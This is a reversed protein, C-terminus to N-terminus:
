VDDANEKLAFMHCFHFTAHITTWCYSSHYIGDVFLVWHRMLCDPSCTAPCALTEEVQHEECRTSSIKQEAQRESM